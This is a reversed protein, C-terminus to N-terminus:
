YTKFESYAYLFENRIIYFNLDRPFFNNLISWHEQFVIMNLIHFYFLGRM